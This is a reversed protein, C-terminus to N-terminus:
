SRCSRRRLATCAVEAAQQLLASSIACAAVCVCAVVRPAGQQHADAAAASFVDRAHWHLGIARREADALRKAEAREALARAAAAQAAAVAAVTGGRNTNSAMVGTMTQPCGM